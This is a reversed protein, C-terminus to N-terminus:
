RESAAGWSSDDGAVGKTPVSRRPMWRKGKTAEEEALTPL